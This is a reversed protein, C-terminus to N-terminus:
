CVPFFMLTIRSYRPLFVGLMAPCSAPAQRSHDADAPAVPAGADGHQGRQPAARRADHPPLARVPRRLEVQRTAGCPGGRLPRVVINDEGARRGQTAWAASTPRRESTSWRLDHIAVIQPLEELPKHVEVRRVVVV